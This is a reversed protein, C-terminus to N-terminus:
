DNLMIYFMAWAWIFVAIVVLAGVIFPGYFHTLAGVLGTVIFPSLAYLFSKLLM